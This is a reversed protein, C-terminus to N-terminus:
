FHRTLSTSVRGNTSFTGNVTSIANSRNNNSSLELFGNDELFYRILKIDTTPNYFKFYYGKDVLKIDPGDMKGMYPHFSLFRSKIPVELWPLVKAAVNVQSNINHLETKKEQSKFFEEMNKAQTSKSVPNM